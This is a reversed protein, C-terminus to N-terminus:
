KWILFRRGERWGRRAGQVGGDCKGVVGQVVVSAAFCELPWSGHWGRRAAKRVEQVAREVDKGDHWAKRAAAMGDFVIRDGAAAHYTAPLCAGESSCDRCVKLGTEAFVARDWTETHNVGGGQM